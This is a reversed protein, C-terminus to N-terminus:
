HIFFLKPPFYPSKSTPRSSLKISFPSRYSYRIDPVGTQGVIM